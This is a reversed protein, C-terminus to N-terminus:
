RHTQKSKELMTTINLLEISNSKCKPYISRIDSILTEFITTKKASDTSSLLKKATTIVLTELEGKRKCETLYRNTNRLLNELYDYNGLFYHLILNLLRIYDKLALAINKPHEFLFRNIQHLNM